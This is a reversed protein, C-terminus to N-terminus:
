NGEDGVGEGGRREEKIKTTSSISDWEENISFSCEIVSHFGSGLVQRKQVPSLQFVGTISTSPFQGILCGPGM